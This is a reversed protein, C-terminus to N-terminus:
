LLYDSYQLMIKNKLMSEKISDMEQQKVLKGANHQENALTQGHHSVTTV